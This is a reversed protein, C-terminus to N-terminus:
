QENEGADAEPAEAQDNGSAPGAGAGGVAAERACQTAAAQAAPPAESQNREAKLRETSTGQMYRDIMCTCFRNPDVTARASPTASSVCTAIQETRYSARYAEDSQTCAALGSFGAISLSLVAVRRM